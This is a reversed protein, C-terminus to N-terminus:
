YFDVAEIGGDGGEASAAEGHGVGHGARPPHARARLLASPDGADRSCVRVADSDLQDFAHLPAQDHAGTPAAM